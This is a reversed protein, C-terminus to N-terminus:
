AQLERAGPEKVVGDDLREAGGLAVSQGDHDDDEVVLFVLRHALAVDMMIRVAGRGALVQVVAHGDISGVVLLKPAMEAEVARPDLRQGFELAGQLGRKGGGLSPLGRDEVDMDVASAGISKTDAATLRERPDRDGQDAEGM